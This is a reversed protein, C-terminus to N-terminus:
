LDLWVHVHHICLHCSAVIMMELYFCCILISKKILQHWNPGFLTPAFSPSATFKLTIKVCFSVLIYLLYNRAPCFFQPHVWLNPARKLLHIYIYKVMLIFAFLTGLLLEQSFFIVVLYLVHIGLNQSKRMKFKLKILQSDLIESPRSIVSSCIKSWKTHM